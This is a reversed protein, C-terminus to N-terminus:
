LTRRKTKWEWRAPWCPRSKRGPGPCIASPAVRAGNRAAIALPSAPTPLTSWSARSPWLRHSLCEHLLGEVEDLGHHKVMEPQLKKLVGVAVLVADRMMQENAAAQENQIRFLSDAMSQEAMALLRETMSEAEQIGATRGAEFAQDRALQLEEESFTPPPPPEEEVPEMYDGPEGEGDLVSDEGYPDPAPRPPAGFDMDFLYKQLKAM